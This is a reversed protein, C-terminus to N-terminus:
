VTSYRTTLKPKTALRSLQQQQRQRIEVEEGGEISYRTTLSPTTSTHFSNSNGRDSRWRREVKSVIVKHRLLINYFKSLQKNQRQRMEVEEGGEM